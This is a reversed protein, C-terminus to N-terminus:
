EDWCQQCYGTISLNQSGSLRGHISSLNFLNSHIWVISNNMVTYFGFFSKIYQYPILELFILHLSLSSPPLLPPLPLSFCPESHHGSCQWSHVCLSSLYLPLLTSVQAQTETLKLPAEPSPGQNDPAHSHSPTNWQTSRQVTQIKNQEFTDSIWFSFLLQFSM